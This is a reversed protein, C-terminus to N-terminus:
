FGSIQLTGWVFEENAALGQGAPLQKCAIEVPLGLRRDEDDDKKYEFNKGSSLNSYYFSVIYTNGDNKTTIRVMFKTLETKNGSQTLVSATPTYDYDITINQVITTLVPAIAVDRLIIGYIGSPNKVLAYDGALAEDESLPGDASGVVSNIAIISGDGNQNLIPYFNDTDWEGSALVDTEGAVLIGAVVTRTDLSGRLLTNIEDSIPEMMTFAVKGDQKSLRDESDTNDNEEANVEFPDEAWSLGQIAGANKWVPIAMVPSIEVLGSGRLIAGVDQITTQFEAM